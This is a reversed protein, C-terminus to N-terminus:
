EQLVVALLYQGNQNTVDWMTNFNVNMIKRNNNQLLASEQELEVNIYLKYNINGGKGGEIISCDIMMNGNLQARRKKKKKELFLFLMKGLNVM